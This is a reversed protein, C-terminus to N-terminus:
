NAPNQECSERPTAHSCLRFCERAIEWDERTQVVLVRVASDPTAIDTDVPSDANKGHDLKMGLFGFADCVAARVEPSNEGIGATFVLADLGGLNPLMASIHCRLKHIFIDFALAARPNGKDREALIQRMDRSIGSVGKLGCEENLIRNLEAADYGRHRVLYILIGPDLSGPRTGMMLGELPTFGMTTDAGVGNRVAALSCGNGLHCAILRLGSLDRGLIRAARRTTYQYSIGHFGYRRIGNELWEYPGAYTYVEPPLKAHFATDFAAVQPVDPGLIREAAEIVSLEVPNHAPAFPGLREIVAKVSPTIRTSERLEQGGHVVRHGAIHIGSRDKLVATPGDWLSELVGDLTDPLHTCPFEKQITAGASRVRIHAVGPQLSLDVFADWLPEPPDELLQEGGVRYMRAKLSSSGANLVLINM